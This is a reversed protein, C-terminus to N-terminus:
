RADCFNLLSVMLAHVTSWSLSWTGRFTMSYLCFLHLRCHQILAALMEFGRGHFQNEKNEFLFCLNGNKIALRLQGEWARSAEANAADTILSGDAHGTAFEPIWLYFQITEFSDLFAKANKIDDLKLLDVRAAISPM